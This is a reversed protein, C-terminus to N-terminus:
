RYTMRGELTNKWAKVIGYPLAFKVVRKARKFIGPYAMLPLDEVIGYRVRLWACMMGYPIAQKLIGRAPLYQRLANLRQLANHAQDMTAMLRAGRGKRIAEYIKKTHGDANGWDWDCQPKARLWAQLRKMCTATPWMIYTKKLLSATYHLFYTELEDFLRLEHLRKGVADIIKLHDLVRCDKIGMLSDQHRRYFYYPCALAGIRQASFLLDFHLAADEYLVGEPFRRNGLFDKRIIRTPAYCCTDFPSRGLDRWTFFTKYCKNPLRLRSWLRQKRRGTEEEVEMPEILCMDLKLREAKAITRHWIVKDVWDDSDVFALWKGKAEEIGRNRAAGLGQNNQDIIRIRKDKEAFAELVKRSNDTSGDNICLIEIEEEAQGCVSNLCRYLYRETNYVPIIVSLRPENVAAMPKNFVHTELLKEEKSDHSMKVLHQAYWVRVNLVDKAWEIWLNLLYESLYGFLRADEKKKPIEVQSELDFLISFLWESYTDYLDKRMIAINGFSMKRPTFLVSKVYPIFQPSKERIIRVLADFATTGYQRSFFDYASVLNGPEGPPFMEWNPPLIVDYKSLIFQIREQTWGFRQYTTETVESFSTVNCNVFAPIRRYHCLGVYDAKVNKWIWYQATLECYNPNKEAINDGTNDRICGEIPNGNGVQLPVFPRRNLLTTAKHCVVFVRIDKSKVVSPASGNLLNFNRIRDRITSIHREDVAFGRARLISLRLNEILDKKLPEINPVDPSFNVKQNNIDSRTWIPIIGRMSSFRDAENYGPAVFVVPIGMALCPQACHLATTIVLGAEDRFRNLLAKAACSYKIEDAPSYGLFCGRQDLCEANKRLSAPIAKMLWDPCNVCFVKGNKPTHDRKPLTLTLCRSFYSNINNRQCWQYTSLDRCGIEQGSFMTKRFRLAWELRQRIQNTLHTGVWVPLVNPNPLFGLTGNDFWGQMVCIAPEGAYWSLESRQWKVFSVPNKSAQLVASETAESQIWDGLNGGWKFFPRYEYKIFLNGFKDLEHISPFHPQMGAFAGSLGDALAEEQLPPLHAVDGLSLLGKLIQKASKSVSSITKM